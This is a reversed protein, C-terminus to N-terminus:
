FQNSQLYQLAGANSPKSVEFSTEHHIDEERQNKIFLSTEAPKM